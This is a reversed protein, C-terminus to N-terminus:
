HVAKPVIGTASCCSVTMALTQKGALLLAQTLGAEEQGPSRVYTGQDQQNTKCLSM